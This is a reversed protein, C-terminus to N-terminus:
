PMLVLAGLPPLTLEVSQEYGHFPSPETDVHQVAGYGSGGWEADDSSLVHRYRGASPVGIRYRENGPRKHLAGSRAAVIRDDAAASM